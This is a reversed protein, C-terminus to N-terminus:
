WWGWLALILVKVWNGQVALLGDGAAM